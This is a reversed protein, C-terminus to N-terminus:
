RGRVPVPAVLTGRLSLGIEEEVLSRLSERAQLLLGVRWLRVTGDWSGSVALDGEPAFAIATVPQTTAGHRLRALETFGELEWFRVTEDWSATTLLRGDRSFALASVKGGHGSLVALESQGRWDWIRVTYEKDLLALALRRGDPSFALATIPARADLLTRQRRDRVQWLIVRGADSGTAFLNESPHSALGTVASRHQGLLAEEEIGGTHLRWLKIRGDDGGSALLEVRANFALGTVWGAHAAPQHGLRELTRGDWLVISRDQSGTTLYRGDPSAALATITNGHVRPSSLREGATLDGGRDVFGQWVGLATRNGAYALRSKGLWAVSGVEFGAEARDTRDVFVRWLRVTWDQSGSVLFRGDGSFALSTVAGDHGALPCLRALDGASRLEISGDLAGSALFRGDPSFALSRVRELHVQAALPEGRRELDKWLRVTGDRFGAALVGDPSFGLCLVEEFFGLPTVSETELDWVELASHFGSALKRGDRSFALCTVVDPHRVLLKPAGGLQGRGDFEWLKVGLEDKHESGSALREGDPSLAVVMVERHEAGRIAATGAIELLEIKNEGAVALRGRRPDFALSGPLRARRLVKLQRPPRSAGSTLDVEIVGSETFCVVASDRGFAVLKPEEGLNTAWVRAAPAETRALYLRERAGINERAEISAAALVAAGQYDKENFATKAQELYLTALSENARRLAESVRMYAAVVVGILLVLGLIAAAAAGRHRRVFRRLLYGLTPPRAQIAEGHVFRDLDDALAAASVYRERPDKRTAKTIITALDAPVNPNVKQPPPPEEFLVQMTLREETDGDIMPRLCALEYLITGLAYVDARHDVDLLGRQLQEPPAYPLTGVFKGRDVTITKSVGSLKALGLDMIVPRHDHRTVMINHPRIDRHVIGQDHIHQLGRAADRVLAAIRFSIDRGERLEPIEEEEEIREAEPLGEAKEAKVLGAATSAAKEFHGERLGGTGHSRYRELMKVISGLHAGDVHEMAYFFTGNEEGFSLIKVVNPHDCRSLARVEIRFRALAQPEDKLAPSLMKLAVLRDLSRQRALYVVAMGGEGLKGVIEFDGLEKGPKPLAEVFVEEGCADVDSRSKQALEEFADSDVRALVVWSLFERLDAVLFDGQQDHGPLYFDGTEYCLFQIGGRGTRARNLFYVKDLVEEPQYYVLPHLSVHEGPAIEVYLRRPLTTESTEEGELVQRRLASPGALDFWDVRREGHLGLRVEEAYVLRGGGLLAPGDLLVKALGLLVPVLRRYTDPAAKIAGHGSMANRYAPLLDLVDLTSARGGKQGGDRGVLAMAARIEALGEEPTGLRDLIKRSWPDGREPHGLFHLTERVIGHWQGLSPLALHTLAADVKASREGRERYRGVFASAALKM